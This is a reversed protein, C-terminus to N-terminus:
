ILSLCAQWDYCVEFFQVAVKSFTLFVITDKEVMKKINKLYLKGLIEFYAQGVYPVKQKSAHFIKGAKRGMDSFLGQRCLGETTIRWMCIHGLVVFPVDQRGHKNQPLSCFLKYFIFFIFPFDRKTFSTNEFTDSRNKHIQYWQFAQEIEQQIICFDWNEWYTSLIYRKNYQTM